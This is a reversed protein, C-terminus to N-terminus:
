CAHCGEKTLVRQYLLKDKANAALHTAGAFLTFSKQTIPVDDYLERMEGVPTYVDDECALFKITLDERKLARMASRVNMDRIAPVRLCELFLALAYTFPWRKWYSLLSKNVNELVLTAHAPLFQAARIVHFAGFSAGHLVIKKSPFQQRAFELVALTDRWYFLDVSDSEGFGNFDFIIVQAGCALYVQARGSDTFFYKAKKNLPHALVVLTDAMCQCKEVHEASNKPKIVAIRLRQTPKEPSRPLWQLSLEGAKEARAQWRPNPEVKVDRFFLRQLVATYM